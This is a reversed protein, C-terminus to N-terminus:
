RQEVTVGSINNDMWGRIRKTVSNDHRRYYNVAQPLVLQRYNSQGDMRHSAGQRQQAMATLSYNNNGVADLIPLQIDAISDLADLESDPLTNRANVLILARLTQLQESGERSLQALYHIAQAGGGGEAIIAINFVGQQNLFTIGAALADLVQQQDRWDVPRMDLALTRWHSQPLANRLSNVISAAAPARQLDPILLVGGRTELLVREIYLASLKRGGASLWRQQKTLEKNGAKNPLTTPATGTASPETASPATPTTQAQLGACYSLVLAYTLARSLGKATTM